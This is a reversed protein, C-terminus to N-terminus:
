VRVSESARKKEERGRIREGERVENEGERDWCRLFYVHCIQNGHPILVLLLELFAV